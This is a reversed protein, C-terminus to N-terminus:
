FEVTESTRTLSYVKVPFLDWDKALMFDEGIYCVSNDKAICVYHIGYHKYPYFRESANKVWDNFSSFQFLETGTLKLEQKM